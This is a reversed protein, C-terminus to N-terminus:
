KWLDVGVSRKIRERLSMEGEEGGITIVTPRISNELNSRLRVPLRDMDRSSMVLIGVDTDELVHNIHGRLSEEDEATYIKRVGALRFGIIFESSGIVAIEM